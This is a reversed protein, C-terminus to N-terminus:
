FRRSPSPGTPCVADGKVCSALYFHAPSRHLYSLTVSYEMVRHISKSESVADSGGSEGVVSFSDFPNGLAITVQDGTKGCLNGDITKSETWYSNSASNWHFSPCRLSITVLKKMFLDPLWESHKRM